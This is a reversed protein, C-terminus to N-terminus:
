HIAHLKKSCEVDFLVSHVGLLKKKIKSRPQQTTKNQVLTNKIKSKAVMFPLFKFHIILNFVFYFIWKLWFIFSNCYIWIANFKQRLPTCILSFSCNTGTSWHSAIRISPTKRAQASMLCKERLIPLTPISIALSEKKRAYKCFKWTWVM